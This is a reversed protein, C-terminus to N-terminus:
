TRKRRQPPGLLRLVALAREGRKGPALVAVIGAILFVLASPGYRLSLAMLAISVPASLLVHVSTSM